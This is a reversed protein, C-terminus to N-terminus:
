APPVARLAKEVSKQLTSKKYPKHLFAVHNDPHAESYIRSEDYGSALIVPIDSRIRRLAALTQWGNMRPMSVDCVVVRITKSHEKFIEVAEVGDSATLVQYGLRTLMTEAMDRLLDDDDVLLITGTEIKKSTQTMRAASQQSIKESFVPLFVRFTSGQDVTSEVSIAGGRSTVIGFVTSLGLGQGTFKTTYFPDFLADFDETAIGCGTDVVEVCAYANHKPQWDRPFLFETPIDSLSVTKVTLLTAGKKDGFSEFANTVLNSVVQELQNADAKIAPGADPLDVELTVDNPATSLLLSLINRCIDSLDLVVHSGRTQGLYTLLHSSVEAAKIAGKMAKSLKEVSDSEQPLDELVMELNGIVIGLNNNLKHSVAGAMRSLSLTKQLQLSLTDFKKRENEVRKRETIDQVNIVHYLVKDRANKVSTINTLVPFSSGDKRHHVSDFILHGLEYAKKQMYDQLKAYEKADFLLSMHMKLVEDVTYGRQRAFAPNCLEVQQGDVHSVLIGWEAHEFIHRWCALVKAKEELLCKHQELKTINKFSRLSAYVGTFLKDASLDSKLRYDDIEYDMIVDRQPAYGPQGTIVMIRVRRNCLDHRIHNVLELGAKSTEMVVDLLILAVDPHQVLLDKAEAASNADLLQLPRGDMQLDQLTLHIVAHIDPEDDVLMIKWPDVPTTKDKQSPKPTFLSKFKGNTNM